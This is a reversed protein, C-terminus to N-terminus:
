TNSSVVEDTASPNAEVSTVRATILGLKEAEDRNEDHSLFELLNQPDNQFRDRVKAPLADFDERAKVIRNMADMYTLSSDWDGYTVNKLPADIAGCRTYNEIISNIDCEEKFDQFTMSPDNNIHGKAQKYTYKTVFNM